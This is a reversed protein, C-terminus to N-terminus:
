RKSGKYMGLVHQVCEELFQAQGELTGGYLASFEEDFDVAFYDFHFPVDDDDAAKRLSVSALSRVQKHSGSNGPVFIVPIGSM